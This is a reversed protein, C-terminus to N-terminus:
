CHFISSFRNINALTISLFVSTGKKSVCHLVSFLKVHAYRCVASIMVPKVLCGTSMDTSWRSILETSYPTQGITESETANNVSM